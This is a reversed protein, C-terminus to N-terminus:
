RLSFDLTEFVTAATDWVTTLDEHATLYVTLDGVTTSYIYPFVMTVGVDSYTSSGRYEWVRSKTTITKEVPLKCFSLHCRLEGHEIYLDFYTKELSERTTGADTLSIQLAEPSPQYFLYTLYLPLKSSIVFRSGGVTFEQDLFSHDKAVKPTNESREPARPIYQVNSDREEEPPFEPVQLRQPDKTGGFLLAGGIIGVLSLTLVGIIIKTSTM